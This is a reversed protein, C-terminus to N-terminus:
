YIVYLKPIAICTVHLIFLIVKDILHGEINSKRQKCGRWINKGCNKLYNEWRETDYGLPPGFEEIWEPYHLMMHLKTTRLAKDSGICFQKYDYLANVSEVLRCVDYKLNTILTRSFEPRRLEMYILIAQYAVHHILATPNIRYGKNPIPQEINGVIKGDIGISFVLHLLMTAMERATTGPGTSLSSNGKSIYAKFSSNDTYKSM